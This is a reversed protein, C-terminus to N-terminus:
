SSSRTMQSKLRLFQRMQPKVIMKTIKTRRMQMIYDHQLEQRGFAMARRYLLMRLHMCVRWLIVFSRSHPFSCKPSYWELVSLYLLILSRSLLLYFTHQFRSAFNPLSRVPREEVPQRTTVRNPRRRLNRSYSEQLRRAYEEDDEIRGVGTSVEENDSFYLFTRQSAKCRTIAACRAFHRAYVPVKDNNECSICAADYKLAFYDARSKPM